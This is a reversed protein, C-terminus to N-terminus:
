CTVRSKYQVMIFRVMYLVRATSVMLLRGTDRGCNEGLGLPHWGSREREGGRREEIFGAAINRRAIM